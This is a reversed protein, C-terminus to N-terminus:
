FIASIKARKNFIERIKMLTASFRRRLPKSWFGGSRPLRVAGPAVGVVFLAARWPENRQPAAWAKEGMKLVM